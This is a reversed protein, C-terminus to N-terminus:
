FITKLFTLVYKHQKVKAKSTKFQKLLEASRLQSNNLNPIFTQVTLQYINGPEIGTFNHYVFQSRVVCSELQEDHPIYTEQRPPSLFCEYFTSWSDKRSKKNTINTIQFIIGQVPLRPLECKTEFYDLFMENENVLALNIM